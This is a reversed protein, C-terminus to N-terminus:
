EVQLHNSEFKEIESFYALQCIVEGFYRYSAVWEQDGGWEQM